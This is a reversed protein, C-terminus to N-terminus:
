NMASQREKWWEKNATAAYARTREEREAMEARVNQITDWGNRYLIAPRTGNVFETMFLHAVELRIGWRMMRYETAGWATDKAFFEDHPVGMREDCGKSNELATAYNKLFIEHAKDIWTVYEDLTIRELDYEQHLPFSYIGNNGEGCQDMEPNKPHICEDPSGFLCTSCDRCPTNERISNTM